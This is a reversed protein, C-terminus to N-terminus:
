ELVEGPADPDVEIEAAPILTENGSHISGFRTGTRIVEPPPSGTGRWM